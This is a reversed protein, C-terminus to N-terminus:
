ARVKATGTLRVVSRGEYAGMAREAAEESDYVGLNVGGASLLAWRVVEVEKFRPLTSLLAKAAAFVERFQWVWEPPPSDTDGKEYYAIAAALKEPNIASM